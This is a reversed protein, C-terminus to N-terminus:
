GIPAGEQGASDAAAPRFLFIGPIMVLSAVAMM